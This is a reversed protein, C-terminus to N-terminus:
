LDSVRGFCRSLTICQSQRLSAHVAAHTVQLHSCQLYSDVHSIFQRGEEEEGEEEEEEEEEGM